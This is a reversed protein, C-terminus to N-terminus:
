RDIANILPQAERHQTLDLTFLVPCNSVKIELPSPEQAEVAGKAGAVWSGKGGPALLQNNFDGPQLFFSLLFLALCM